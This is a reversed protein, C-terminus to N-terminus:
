RIQAASPAHAAATKYSGANATTAAHNTRRRPRPSAIMVNAAPSALVMKMGNDLASRVEYPQRSATRIRAIMRPTVVM